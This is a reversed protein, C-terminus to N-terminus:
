QAKGLAAPRRILRLRLEGGARRHFHLNKVILAFEIAVISVLTFACFHHLFAFLTSM